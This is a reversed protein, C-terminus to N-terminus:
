ESHPRTDVRPTDHRLCYGNRLFQDTLNVLFIFTGRSLFIRLLQAVKQVRIVIVGSFGCLLLMVGLNLFAFCILRVSPPFSGSRLVQINAWYPYYARNVSILRSISSRWGPQAPQSATRVNQNHKSRGVMELEGAKMGKVSSSINMM